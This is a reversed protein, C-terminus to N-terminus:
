KARVCLNASSSPQSWIWKVTGKPCALVLWKFWKNKKSSVLVHNIKMTIRQKFTHHSSKLVVWNVIHVATAICHCKWLKM